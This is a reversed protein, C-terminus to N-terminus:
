NGGRFIKKMLPPVNLFSKVFFKKYNLLQQSINLKKAIEKKSNHYYLEHKDLSLQSIAEEIVRKNEKKHLYKMPDGISSAYILNDNYKMILKDDRYSDRYMKVHSNKCISYVEKSVEVWQYKVRIFYQKNDKRHWFHSKVYDNKM